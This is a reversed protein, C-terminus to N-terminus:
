RPTRCYFEGSCVPGDTSSFICDRSYDFVHGSFKGKIFKRPQYREITVSGRAWYESGECDWGVVDYIKQKGGSGFGLRIGGANPIETYNGFPMTGPKYGSTSITCVVGGSSLTAGMIEFYDTYEDQMDGSLIYEKGGFTLKIYGTGIVFQSLLIVKKGNTFDITTTITVPNQGPTGMPATYTNSGGNNTALTGNARGGVVAWTISKSANKYTLPEETNVLPSLVNLHLRASEGWSLIGPVPENSDVFMNELQAIEAASWDSFHTMPVTIRHTATDTKVGPVNYWIGDPKQWAVRFADPDNLTIEEKEYTFSLIGPKAFTTGDPSFRYAQAIGNPTHNTIPQISVPTPVSLAGAPLTLRIKGDATEITGGEPGITRVIAAGAPDGPKTRIGNETIEEEKDVDTGPTVPQFTDKCAVAGFLLLAPIIVNPFYRKM